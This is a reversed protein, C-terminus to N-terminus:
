AAASANVAKDAIKSLKKDAASEEDLTRKLLDAAEDHGLERAWAVLTGYRAIEYHEIAQAVSLLGADLTSEDDIEDILGEAEDILGVMADCKVGRAPKGIIEFVQELRGIQDETEARHSAFAESLRTESAKKEMKGLSKLIQREAYLVDKLTHIFLDNLNKIAM